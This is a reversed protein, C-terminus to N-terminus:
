NLRVPDSSSLKANTQGKSKLEAGRGAHGPAEFIAEAM